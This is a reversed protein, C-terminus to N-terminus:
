GNDGSDQRKNKRLPDDEGEPRLTGEPTAGEKDTVSQERAAAKAGAYAKTSSEVAESMAASVKRGSAKVHQLVPKEENAESAFTGHGTGGIPAIEQERRAAEGAPGNKATAQARKDVSPGDGDDQEKDSM